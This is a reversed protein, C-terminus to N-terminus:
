FLPELHYLIINCFKLFQFPTLQVLFSNEKFKVLKIKM